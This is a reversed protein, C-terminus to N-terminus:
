IFCTPAHALFFLFPFLALSRVIQPKKANKQTKKGESTNCASERNTDKVQRLVNEFTRFRIDNVVELLCDQATFPDQERQVLADLQLAVDASTNNIIGDAIGRVASALEPFEAIVKLHAYISGM